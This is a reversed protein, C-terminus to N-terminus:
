ELYREKIKLKLVININAKGNIPGKSKYRRERLKTKQFTNLLIVFSGFCLMIRIINHKPERRITFNFIRMLISSLILKKENYL